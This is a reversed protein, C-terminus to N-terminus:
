PLQDSRTSMIGARIVTVRGAFDQGLMASNKPYNRQSFKGNCLDHDAYQKEEAGKEPGM